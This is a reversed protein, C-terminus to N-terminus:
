YVFDLTPSPVNRRQPFSGALVLILMSAVPSKVGSRSRTASASAVDRDDVNGAEVTAIARRALLNDVRTPAGQARTPNRTM